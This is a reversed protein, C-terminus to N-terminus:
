LTPNWAGATDVLVFFGNANADPNYLTEGQQVVFNTGGGGDWSEWIDVSTENNVKQCRGGIDTMVDDATCQATAYPLAANNWGIDMPVSQQTAYLNASTNFVYGDTTGDDVCYIMYSEGADLAFNTGEFQALYAHSTGDRRIYDVWRGEWDHMITVNFQTANEIGYALAYATPYNAIDDSPVNVLNWGDQLTINAPTSPMSYTIWSSTGITGNLTVGDVDYNRGKVMPRIRVRDLDSISSPSYQILGHAPVQAITGDVNWPEVAPTSSYEVQYEILDNTNDDWPAAYDGAEDAIFMMANWEVLNGNQVITPMPELMCGDALTDVGLTSVVSAIATYNQDVTYGEYGMVIEGLVFINEGGHAATWNTEVDYGDVYAPYGSVASYPYKCLASPVKIWDSYGAQAYGTTSTLWMRTMVHNTGPDTGKPEPTGNTWTAMDEGPNWYFVSKGSAASATPMVAMASIAVLMTAIALVYVKENVAM